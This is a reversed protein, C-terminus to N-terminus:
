QFPRQVAVSVAGIPRLLLTLTIVTTISRASKNFQAELDTISLSVSFFDMADCSWALWRNRTFLILERWADINTSYSGLFFIHANFLPSRTSASWSLDAKM